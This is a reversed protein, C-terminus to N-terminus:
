GSIPLVSAQPRRPMLKRSPGMFITKSATIDKKIKNGETDLWSFADIVALLAAAAAPFARM